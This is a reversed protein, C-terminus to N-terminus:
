GKPKWKYGCNACRNMTQNSGIFGTMISFGRQGTTISTSGCKPCVVQGTKYAIKSQPNKEWQEWRKKLDLNSRFPVADLMQQTIRKPIEDHEDIYHLLYTLPKMNYKTFYGDAIQSANIFLQYYKGQKLLKDLYTLDYDKGLINCIVNNENSVDSERNYQIEVTAGVQAFYEQIKEGEEESIDTQITQPLSDVINKAGALDLGTFERVRKITKVPSTGCDTLVAKRLQNKSIEKIEGLPYGCHICQKSKDSIEKGCEPCKILSMYIVRKKM